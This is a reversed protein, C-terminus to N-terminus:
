GLAQATRRDLIRKGDHNRRNDDTTLPGQSRRREVVNYVIERALDLPFNPSNLKGNQSRNPFSGSGYSPCGRYIPIWLSKGRQEYYRLENRTRISATSVM